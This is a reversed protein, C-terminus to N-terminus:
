CFAASLVRANRLTWHTHFRFSPIAIAGAATLVGLSFLITGVPGAGTGCSPHELGGLKDTFALDAYSIVSSNQLIILPSLTSHLPYKCVTSGKFGNGGTALKGSKRGEYIGSESSTIVRM